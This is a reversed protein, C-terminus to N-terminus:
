DFLIDIDRQSTHDSDGDLRPGNLLADADPAGAEGPRAHV